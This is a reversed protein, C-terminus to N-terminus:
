HQRKRLRVGPGGGNADIFMIGSAELARRIALDNAATLTTREEANERAQDYERRSGIRPRSRGQDNESSATLKTTLELMASGTHAITSYGSAGLNTFLQTLKSKKLVSPPLWAGSWHHSQCCKRQV